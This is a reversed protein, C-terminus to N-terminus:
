NIPSTFLVGASQSCVLMTSDSPMIIRASLLGLNHKIDACLWPFYKIKYNVFEQEEDTLASNELKDIYKPITLSSGMQNRTALYGGEAGERATWRRNKKDCTKQGQM